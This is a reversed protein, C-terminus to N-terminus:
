AMAITCIGDAHITVTIDGGNTAVPAAFENYSVLASTGEVTTDYYCIVGLLSSGGAVASWTLGTDAADFKLTTTAVTFAPTTLAIPTGITSASVDAYDAHASNYAATTLAFKTGAGELDLPAELLMEWGLPYM